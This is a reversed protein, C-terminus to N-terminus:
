TYRRERKAMLVQVAIQQVQYLGFSYNSGGCAVEVERFWEAIAKGEFTPGRRVRVVALIVIAVPLCLFLVCYLVKRKMDDNAFAQSTASPIV